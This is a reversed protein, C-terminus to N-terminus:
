FFISPSGLNFLGDYDVPYICGDGFTSLLLLAFFALDLDPEEAFVDLGLDLIETFFASAAFNLDFLILNSVLGTANLGALDLALPAALVSVGADPLTLLGAMVIHGLDLGRNALVLDSFLSGSQM